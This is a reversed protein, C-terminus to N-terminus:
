RQGAAGRASYGSREQQIYFDHIAFFVIVFDDIGFGYSALGSHHPGREIVRAEGFGEDDVGHETGGGVCRQHMRDRLMLLPGAASFDAGGQQSGLM